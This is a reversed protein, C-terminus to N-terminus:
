TSAFAHRCDGRDAFSKAPIANHLLDSLAAHTDNKTGEVILELAVDRELKSGPGKVFGTAFSKAVLGKSESTEVM